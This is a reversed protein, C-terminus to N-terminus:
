ATARKRLMRNALWHLLFLTGLTIVFVVLGSFEHFFGEAYEKGFNQGLLGSGVIRLSNVGVALPVALVVLVCRIWIKKEMLLGYFIALTILAMLSRIGSCAEVVNLSISPLMIINGERLAPVRLLDLTDGALRSALFQLPLAVENFVIVPLPIMLFLVAWPAGVTRLMKWGAFQVVLGGLFIVLSVRALFLEAGFTGLILAAMAIAIWVAGAASPRIAVDKWSSRTKWLLYASFIVVIFGHSADADTWWQRVLGSITPWYLLLALASLIGTQLYATTRSNTVPEALTRTAAMETTEIEGSEAQNLNREKEWASEIQKVHKGRV